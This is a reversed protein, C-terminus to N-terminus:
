GADVGHESARETYSPFERRGRGWRTASRKASLAFRGRDMRSRGHFVLSSRPEGDTASAVHFRGGTPRVVIVIRKARREKCRPEAVGYRPKSRNARIVAREDSTMPYSRGSLERISVGERLHWRQGMAREASVDRVLQFPGRTSTSNCGDGCFSGAGGRWQRRMPPTRAGPSLGREGTRFGRPARWLSPRSGRARRM